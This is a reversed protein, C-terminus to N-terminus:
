REAQLIRLLSEKRDQGAFIMPQLDFLYLIGKNDNVEVILQM